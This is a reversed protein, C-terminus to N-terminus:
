PSILVGQIISCSFLASLDSYQPPLMSVDLLCIFLVHEKLYLV